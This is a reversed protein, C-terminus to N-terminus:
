LDITVSLLVSLRSFILRGLFPILNSNLLLLIRSNLFSSTTDRSLAGILLARLLLGLVYPLSTLSSTISCCISSSLELTSSSMFSFQPDSDSLNSVCDPSQAMSSSLSVGMFSPSCVRLSYSLVLSLSSCLSLFLYASCPIFVM